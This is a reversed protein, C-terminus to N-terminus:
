KSSIGELFHRLYGQNGWILIMNDILYNNLSSTVVKGKWENVQLCSPAEQVNKMSELKVLGYRGLGSSGRLMGGIVLFSIVLVIWRHTDWRCECQGEHGYEEVVNPDWLWVKPAEHLSWWICGDCKSVFLEGDIFVLADDIEVMNRPSGSKELLQCWDGLNPM